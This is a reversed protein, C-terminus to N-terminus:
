RVAACTKLRAVLGRKFSRQLSTFNQGSYMNGADRLVRAPTIIFETAHVSMERLLLANEQDSRSTARTIPAVSARGVIMSVVNVVVIRHFHNLRMDRIRIPILTLEMTDRKSRRPLWLM